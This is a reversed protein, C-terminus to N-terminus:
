LINFHSVKIDKLYSFMPKNNVMMWQILLLIINQNQEKTLLCFLKQEFFTFTVYAM